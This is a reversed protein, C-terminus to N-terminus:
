AMEDDGLSAATVMASYLSAMDLARLCVGRFEPRQSTKGELRQGVWM